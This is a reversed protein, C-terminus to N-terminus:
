FLYELVNVPETPPLSMLIKWSQHLHPRLYLNATIVESNHPQGWVCLCVFWCFVYEREKALFHLISKLIKSIRPTNQNQNQNQLTTRNHPTNPKKAHNKQLGFLGFMGSWKTATLCLSIAVFFFCPFVPARLVMYIFINHPFYKQEAFAQAEKSLDIRQHVSELMPPQWSTALARKKHQFYNAFFGHCFRM